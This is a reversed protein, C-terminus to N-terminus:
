LPAGEGKEEGKRKRRMPTKVAFIVHFTGVRCM